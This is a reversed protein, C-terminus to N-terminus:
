GEHGKKPKTLMAVLELLQAVGTCEEIGGYPLPDNGSWTVVYGGETRAIHIEM